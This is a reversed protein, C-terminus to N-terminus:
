PNKPGMRNEFQCISHRILTWSTILYLMKWLDRRNPRFKGLSLIQDGVEVRQNPADSAKKVSTVMCDDGIMQMGFGYEFYDTRPPLIMRTHSDNFEMLVQVLVRYMQWNYQLTKVRAKATEIRAKLDIGRFAPDYYYERLIEGM